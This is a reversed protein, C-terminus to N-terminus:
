YLFVFLLVVCVSTVYKFASACLCSITMHLGDAYPLEIDATGIRHCREPVAVPRTARERASTRSPFTGPGPIHLNWDSRIWCSSGSLFM